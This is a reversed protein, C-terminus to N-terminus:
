FLILQEGSHISSLHDGIPNKFNAIRLQNIASLNINSILGDYDMIIIGIPTVEILKKIFHSQESIQTREERLTEIMKNYIEVLHDVEISGTKLYKISFDKDAIADTGSQILSIPRIFSKYLLYSFFLSIFVLFESIVFFKLNDKFVFYILTIFVSHLAITYIIYKNKLSMNLAM